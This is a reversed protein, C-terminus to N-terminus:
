TNMHTCKHRHTYTPKKFHLKCATFHGGYISHDYIETWRTNCTPKGSCCVQLHVITTLCINILSCWLSKCKHLPHSLFPFSFPLELIHGWVIRSPTRFTLHGELVARLLTSPVLCKYGGGCVCLCVCTHTCMFMCVPSTMPNITARCFPLAMPYNLAGWSIVDEQFPTHTVYWLIWWAHNNKTRARLRLIM